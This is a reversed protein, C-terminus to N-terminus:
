KDEPFFNGDVIPFSIEDRCMPCRIDGNILLKNLCNRCIIRHGSDCINKSNLCKVELCVCCKGQADKRYIFDLDLNNNRLNNKNKSTLRKFYNPNNDRLRKAYNIGDKSHKDHVLVADYVIRKVNNPVFPSNFLDYLSIDYNYSNRLMCLYCPKNTCASGIYHDRRMKTCCDLCINKELNRNCKCSSFMVCEHDKKNYFKKCAACKRRIVSSKKAGFINSCPLSLLTSMSLIILKKIKM